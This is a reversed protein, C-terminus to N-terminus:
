MAQRSIRDWGLAALRREKPSYQRRVVWGPDGKAKRFEDLLSHVNNHGTACLVVRNSPIDPGNDGKPWVHHIENIHSRPTHHRHATCPKSTRVPSTM